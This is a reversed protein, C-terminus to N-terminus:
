WTVEWDFVFLANAPPFPHSYTVVPLGDSGEIPVLHIEDGIRTLDGFRDGMRYIRLRVHQFHLPQESLALRWLLFRAPREVPVSDRGIPNTYDAELLTQACEGEAFPGIAPAIVKRFRRDGSPLSEESYDTPAVPRSVGTPTKIEAVLRLSSPAAPLVLNSDSVAAHGARRVSTASAIRAHARDSGCRWRRNVSILGDGDLEDADQDWRLAPSLPIRSSSGRRPIWRSPQALGIRELFFALDLAWTAARTNMLRLANRTAYFQPALQATWLVVLAGPIGLEVIPDLLSPVPMDVFPLTSMSPFSSLGAVFFVTIVVVIQRGALFREMGEDDRLRRNLRYARPLEAALGRLDALRLQTGSTHLAEFLGLFALALGFMLLAVPGPLSGFRESQGELLGGVVIYLCGLGLFGSFVLVARRGLRRLPGSLRDTDLREGLRAELCEAAVVVTVPDDPLGGALMQEIARKMDGTVTVAPDDRVLEIVEDASLSERACLAVIQGCLKEFGDIRRWNRLRLQGWERPWDAIGSSWRLRAAAALSNV